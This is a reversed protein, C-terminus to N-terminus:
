IWDTITLERKGVLTMSDSLRDALVRNNLFYSKRSTCRRSSLDLDSRCHRIQFSHSQLKTSLAWVNDEVVCVKLLRNFPGSPTNQLDRHVKKAESM